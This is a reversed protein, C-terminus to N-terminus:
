DNDGDIFYNDVKSRPLIETGEQNWGWALETRLAPMLRMLEITEPEYGLQQFIDCSIAEAAHPPQVVDHASIYPM